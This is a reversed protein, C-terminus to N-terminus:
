SLDLRTSVWESQAARETTYARDFDERTGAQRTAAHGAACASIFPAEAIHDTLAMRAADAALAAACGPVTEGGLDGAARRGLDALEGVTGADRLQREWSSDVTQDLVTVAHDRARWARWAGLERGVGDGWADIRRLLRGRRAVVKRESEVVDGDLEIEWLEHHIWYALDQPRCAHIGERCPRAAAAELWAGPAADDPLPWRVAQIRTRGERDLFKYALV